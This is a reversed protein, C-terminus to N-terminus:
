VLQCCRHGINKDVKVAFWHLLGAIHQLLFFTGSLPPCPTFYSVFFLIMWGKTGELCHMPVWPAPTRDSLQEASCRLKVSESHLVVIQSVSIQVYFAARWQRHLSFVTSHRASCSRPLRHFVVVANFLSSETTVDRLVDAFGFTLPKNRQLKEVVALASIFM